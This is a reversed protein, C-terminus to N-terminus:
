FLNMSTQLFVSFVAALLGKKFIALLTLGVERKSFSALTLHLSAVGTVNELALLTVSSSTRDLQAGEHTGICSPWM